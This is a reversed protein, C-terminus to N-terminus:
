APGLIKVLRKMIHLIFSYNEMIEMKWRNVWFCQLSIILSNNSSIRVLLMIFVSTTPFGYLVSLLRAAKTTVALGDDTNAYLLNKSATLIIKKNLLDFRQLTCLKVDSPPSLSLDFGNAGNFYDMVKSCAPEDTLCTFSAIFHVIERM